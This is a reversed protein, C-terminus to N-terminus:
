AMESQNFKMENVEIVKLQAEELAEEAKDARGNAMSLANNSAKLTAEAAALKSKLAEIEAQKTELKSEQAQLQIQKLKQYETQLSTLQRQHQESLYKYQQNQADSSSELEGELQEIRKQQESVSNSMVVCNVEAKKRQEEENALQNTLETVEQELASNKVKAMEVARQLEANANAYQSVRQQHLERVKEAEQVKEALHHQLQSGFLAALQSSTQNLVEDILKACVEQQSDATENDQKQQLQELLQRAQDVEGGVVHVLDEASIAGLPKGQELWQQLQREFAESMDNKKTRTKGKLPLSIKM